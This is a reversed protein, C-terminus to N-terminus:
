GEFFTTLSTDTPIPYGKIDSKSIPKIDKEPSLSKALDYVTQKKGPVHYVGTRDGNFVPVLAEAMESVPMRTTWQDHFAKDYPFENTCFSLRVILSNDYMRVACEGGLKSWAYKNVPNVPDLEDYDGSKGDFVYDTSIYILRKGTAMCADVVNCTGVINTRLAKYTMLSDKEIHDTLTIAAMHVVTDVEKRHDELYDYLSEIDEVNLEKETPYLDDPFHKQLESGLLGNGGTFLKM